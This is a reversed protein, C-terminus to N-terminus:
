LEKESEFDVWIEQLAQLLKPVAADSWMGEGRRGTLLILHMTYAHPFGEVELWISESEAECSIREEDMLEAAMAAMTDSLQLALRCFDNFETTTLELSWTDSGVLGQFLEANPFCGVRWGDGRKLQRTGSAM